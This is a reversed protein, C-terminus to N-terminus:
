HTPNKKNTQKNRKLCFAAYSRRMLSQLDSTPEESRPLAAVLNRVHQRIAGVRGSLYGGPSAIADAVPGPTPNLGPAAAERQRNLWGQVQPDGLLELLEDVKTLTGADVPALAEQAGLPGPLM